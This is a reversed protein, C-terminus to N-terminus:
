QAAGATNAQPPVGAARLEIKRVKGTATRPLEALFVFRRPVKFGALQQRAFATIDAALAVEDASEQGAALVVAATVTEGWKEDATGYVSVEAIAPHRYLVQEIEIPYVNEGGTIVMNKKRDVIRFIGEEDVTGLDGTHFWGDRFAEETAEPRNWYGPSVSPGSVIVEGVEGTPVDEGLPDVIRMRVHAMPRGVTGSHSRILESPLLTTAATTETLGYGETFAVGKDVIGEIVTIPCPAGGSLTTDLSSTDHRDFAGSTLLAQWMAPVCFAKTAQYQEVAAAWSEPDFSELVVSSAGWYM